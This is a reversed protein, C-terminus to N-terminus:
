TFKQNEELNGAHVTVVCSAQANGDASRATITATGAQTGTVLGKDNVRAISDNSSSWIIAPNSVDEPLLTAELQLSHLIEVTASQSSLTVQEALTTTAYYSFHIIDNELRIRELRNELVEGSWPVFNLQTLNKNGPFFM